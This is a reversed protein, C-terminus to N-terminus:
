SKPDAESTEVMRILIGADSGREGFPFLDFMASMIQKAEPRIIPSIEISAMKRGGECKEVTMGFKPFPFVDATREMVESSMGIWNSLPM